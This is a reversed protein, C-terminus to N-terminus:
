MKQRHSAKSWSGKLDNRSGRVEENKELLIIDYRQTIGGNTTEVV